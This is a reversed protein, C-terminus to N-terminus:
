EAIRRSRMRLEHAQEQGVYRVDDETEIGRIFRNLMEVVRGREKGYPTQLRLFWEDPGLGAVELMKKRAEKQERALRLADEEQTHPFTAYEREAYRLMLAAKEYGSQSVHCSGAVADLFFAAPLIAMFRAVNLGQREAVEKAGALIQTERADSMEWVIDMHIRVLERLLKAEAVPRHLTALCSERFASYEPSAGKHAHEPYHWGKDDEHATDKKGIDHALVYAALFEKESQLTEQLRLFFGRKEKAAYWEDVGLIGEGKTCSFLVTLGRVLHDEVQPGESHHPASQPTECLARFDDQAKAQVLLERAEKRAEGDGVCEELWQSFHKPM